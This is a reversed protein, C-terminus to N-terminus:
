GCGVELSRWLHGYDSEKHDLTGYTVSAALVAARTDHHARLHPRGIALSTSVASIPDSSALPMFCAEFAHPHSVQLRVM